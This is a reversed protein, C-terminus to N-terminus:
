HKGPFMTARDVDRSLQLNDHLLNANVIKLEAIKRIACEYHHHGYKWCEENHTMEPRQPHSKSM